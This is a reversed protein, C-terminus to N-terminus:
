YIFSHIVVNINGPFPVCKCLCMLDNDLCKTNYRSEKQRRCSLSLSELIFCVSSFLSLSLFEFFSKKDFLFFLSLFLFSSASRFFFRMCHQSIKHLSHM